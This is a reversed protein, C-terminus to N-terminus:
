LEGVEWPVPEGEWEDGEDDVPKKHTGEEEKDSGEGVDWIEGGRNADYHGERRGYLLERAIRKEVDDEKQPGPSLALVRKLDDPLDVEFKGSESSEPPIPIPAPRYMTPDYEPESDAGAAPDIPIDGDKGTTHANWSWALEKVHMDEDFSDEDDAEDDGLAELLKAKKRSAASINKGKGKDGYRSSKAEPPPPSPPLLRPRSTDQAKDPVDDIDMDDRSMSRKGMRPADKSPGPKVGIAPLTNVAHVVNSPPAASWLDNKGPLVARPFGNKFSKRKEPKENLSLDLAKIKGGAVRPGEWDMEDDTDPSVARSKTIGKKPLDRFPGQSNVISKTRSPPHVRIDQQAVPVEDFLLKFHKGDARRKVPSVDFFADDADATTAEGAELGADEDGSADSNALLTSHLAFMLSSHSAVRARKEKVPSPSVLEGRLRKRARTIATDKHARVPDDHHVPTNPNPPYYPPSSSIQSSPTQPPQILPFPDPSPDRRPAHPQHKAKKPTAFPNARSSSSVPLSDLFLAKQKGKNKVPSFPNDTLVPAATKVVRPKSVITSPRPQRPQSRPPTSPRDKSVSRSASSSVAGQKSLKKYLKYKAAVYSPSLYALFCPPHFLRSISVCEQLTRSIRCPRIADM